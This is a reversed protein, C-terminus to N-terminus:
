FSARTSVLFSRPSGYLIGLRDTGSRIYRRDFLNEVFLTSELRGSRFGLRGDFRVYGPIQTHDNLARESTYVAGGGINAGHLPGEPANLVAFSGGSHRATLPLATGINGPDTDETVRAVTYAYNAILRLWGDIQTTTSLELGRSRAAGRQVQFDPHAPDPVSINRNNIQFAVADFTFRDGLFATREGIEFARSREPRLVGGNAATGLVPWFGTSANAYLAFPQVPRYVVGTRLSQEPQGARESLTATSSEQRYSDARAGLLVILTPCLTIIDSAYIGGTQYSWRNARGAALPAAPLPSGYDPNQVNIPDPNTGADSLGLRFNVIERGLDVGAMLEHHVPGTHLRGRVGIQLETDRSDSAWNVAIRDLTHGDAELALPNLAYETYRGFKSQAAVRLSWATSLEHWLELRM